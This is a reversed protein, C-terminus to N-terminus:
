VRQHTSARARQIADAFLPNWKKYDFGTSPHQIHCVEIGGPFAPLNTALEKGLVLVVNPRLESLVHLFPRRSDSWMQYTPRVRSDDSVFGQIYNYFAVHEWVESRSTDDLWSNGDLGLLVKAVKTFFPHRKTKAWERVVESTITSRTEQEPGYHSEGLVLLRVGFRNDDAYRSGIWPEFIIGSM